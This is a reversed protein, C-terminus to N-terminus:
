KFKITCGIEFKWDSTIKHKTTYVLTIYELSSSPNTDQEAVVLLKTDDNVYRLM